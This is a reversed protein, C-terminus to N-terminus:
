RWKDILVTTAGWMQWGQMMANAEGGVVVVHVDDRPYVQVRADDPLDLYSAPWKNKVGNMEHGKLIPIIFRQYYHDNRFESMTLTANRWLEEAVKAKTMGSKALADATAPALLAVMGSPWQFYAVDRALRKLDQHLMNGTHSWGGSFVTITSDERRFGRSVQFPEWPSAAENEAFCFAYSGVNGQTGMLNIGNEGGGLNYIFLRLARGITANARNGPGLAYTGSNMGIERAIPGNVLQMFSFSNTSRVGSAFHGSGFAEVAALLVPMENPMAGAMVGNIAVKEVTAPWGEPLMAKTVIETAAHSTGKMMAAVNEETPPIIPLGDTWKQAYFFDQIESLSGKAAIRAPPESHRMGTARETESLPSTLGAVVADTIDSAQGEGAGSRNPVAVLRLSTGLKTRTVEANEALASFHLVVGPIAAKELGAAWTVSWMTTAASDAAVYVFGAAERKVQAWLEPEDESYASDKYRTVINIRPYRAKLGSLLREVVPEFGSQVNKPWAHIVFVTKGDLDGLRPSLPVLRVDPPHGRPNLAQFTPEDALVFTPAAGLFILCAIVASWRSFCDAARGSVHRCHSRARM